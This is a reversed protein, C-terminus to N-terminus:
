NLSVEHESVVALSAPDIIRLALQGGDGQRYILRLAGDQRSFLLVDSMNEAIRKRLSGDPTAAILDKNDKGTIRGDGDTDSWVASVAILSVPGENRRYSPNGTDASGFLWRKMVIGKDDGLLRWSSGDRTNVVVYDVISGATKSYSRLAYSQERHYPAIAAPIGKLTEFEGIWLRTEAEREDRVVVDHIARDRTAYSVVEYLAALGALALIIGAFFIIIANVRWINRFLRHAGAM